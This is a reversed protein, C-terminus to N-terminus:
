IHKNNQLPCLGLSLNFYKQGLFKRCLYWPTFCAISVMWRLNPSSDSWFGHDELRSFVGPKLVWHLEPKSTEDRSSNQSLCLLLYSTSKNLSFVEWTACHYLIRRWSLRCVNLGQTLFIGQLLAHCGVGINKGVFNWSGPLWTPSFDM